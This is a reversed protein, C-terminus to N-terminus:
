PKRLVADLLRNAINRLDSVHAQLSEVQAPTGVGSPRVGLSWLQNMLHQAAAEDLAIDASYPEIRYPDVTKLQIAHVGYIQQDQTIFALKLCVRNQADNTFAHVRTEVRKKYYLADLTIGTSNDVM